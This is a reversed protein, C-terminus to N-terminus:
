DGLELARALNGAVWYYMSLGRLVPFLHPSDDSNRVLEYARGYCQAVEIAGTGRTSMLPVGLAIQVSLEQDDRESSPPMREVITLARRLHSIAEVFASRESAGQGALLWYFLARRDVAAATYHCALLEPHEVVVHSYHEEIAQAIRTHYVLRRSRLLSEYAADQILAHRFVYTGHAPDIHSTETSLAILEADVLRSLARQIANDDADMVHRLLGVDFERGITAGIQALEKADSLRDLRTMLSDHLTSPIALPPLPGTLDFGADTEVILDSELIMRTLEEVFLPIGDTKELIQAMVDRPLSKGETVRTVMVEIQAHSMRNLEIGAVRPAFSWNRYFIPRCSVLIMVPVDACRDALMEVLELTSPDVWHLDELLFLVPGRRSIAVVLEVVAALTRRRRVPPTVSTVRAAFDSEGSADLPIGLLGALSSLHDTINVGYEILKSELTQLRTSADDSQKIGLFAHLGEIVPRLSSTQAYMSCRLEILVHEHRIAIRDKFVKVFRSKGIGPEGYVTVIQGNSAAVLDWLSEIRRLEGDRGVLPTLGLHENADVRNGFGTQRIVRHVMYSEGFGKLAFAGLSECDFYGAILRATAQSIVITDPEAVGQLRAALHIADGQALQDRGDGVDGIVVVGTHIGIRVALEVGSESDRANLQRIAAIIALAARAARVADDEHASPYGFYVLLGDGLYQAVYGEFGAIVDACTRQYATLIARLEEPDHQLTLTTSDVLDCFMM